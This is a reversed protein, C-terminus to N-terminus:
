GEIDLLSHWVQDSDPLVIDKEEDLSQLSDMATKVVEWWYEFTPVKGKLARLVWKNHGHEGKPFVLVRLGKEQLIRLLTFLENLSDMKQTTIWNDPNELWYIRIEITILVMGGPQGRECLDYLPEMFGALTHKLERFRFCHQLSTEGLQYGYSTHVSRLYGELEFKIARIHNKPLMDLDWTDDDLVLPLIHWDPGLDLVKMSYWTKAIRRLTEEEFFSADYLSKDFGGYVYSHIRCSPDTDWDADWSKDNLIDSESFCCREHCTSPDHGVGLWYHNEYVPTPCTCDFDLTGVVVTDCESSFLHEYILDQLEQPLAVAMDRCLARCTIQGYNSAMQLIKADLDSEQQLAEKFREAGQPSGTQLLVEALSCASASYKACLADELRRNREVM